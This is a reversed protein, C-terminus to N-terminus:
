LCLILSHLYLLHHHISPRQYYFLTNRNKVTQLFPVSAFDGKRHKSIALSENGGKFFPPPSLKIPQLILSVKLHYFKCEQAFPILKRDLRGRHIIKDSRHHDVVKSSVVMNEADAFFELRHENFFVESVVNGTLQIKPLLVPLPSCMVWKCCMDNALESIINVVM